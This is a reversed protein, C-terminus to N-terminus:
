IKREVKLITKILRVILTRLPLYIRYALRDKSAKNYQSFAQIDISQAQNLLDDENIGNAKPPQYPSKHNLHLILRHESNRLRQKVQRKIHKRLPTIDNITTQLSNIQEEKITNVRELEETRQDVKQLSENIKLLNPSIVNPLLYNVIPERLIIDDVYNFRKIGKQSKDIYYENLGDFYAVEYGRDVLIPRWDRDIHNAEICIVWPKFKEWDNGELVEYEYGEVDVKMFHITQPTLRAFIDALTTMEVEYDVHRKTVSSPSKEYETKMHEAFTSLGSGDPYERLQLIGKKNSVGVNLNVDRTRLEELKQFHGKIPEINIGHWGQDYFYKTVSADTPDNAGVDVYFGKLGPSFFGALIVDERNQAYSVLTGKLLDEARIQM